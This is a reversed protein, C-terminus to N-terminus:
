KKKKSKSKKKIVPKKTLDIRIMDEGVTKVIVSVEGELSLTKNVIVTDVKTVTDILRVTDIRVVTDVKVATDIKAKVSKKVVPKENDSGDSRWASTSLAVLLVCVLIRSISKM